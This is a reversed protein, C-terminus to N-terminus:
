ISRLHVDDYGIAAGSIVMGSRGTQSCFDIILKTHLRREDGSFIADKVHLDIAFQHERLVLGATKGVFVLQENLELSLFWSCRAQM